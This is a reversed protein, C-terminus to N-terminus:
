IQRYITSPCGELAAALTTLPPTDTAPDPEMVQHKGMTKGIQDAVNNIIRRNDQNSLFSSVLGGLFGSKQHQQEILPPVHELYFSGSLDADFFSELIEDALVVM